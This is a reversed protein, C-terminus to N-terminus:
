QVKRSKPSAILLYARDLTHRCMPEVRVLEELARLVHEAVAPQNQRLARGYVTLLEKGLTARGRDLELRM